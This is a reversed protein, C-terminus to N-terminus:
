CANDFDVNVILPSSYTVGTAKSLIFSINNTVLQSIVFSLVIRCSSLHLPLYTSTFYNYQKYNYYNYIITCNM